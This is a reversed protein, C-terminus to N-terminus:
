PGPHPADGIRRTKALPGTVGISAIVTTKRRRANRRTNRSARVEDMAIRLTQKWVDVPKNASKVVPKKPCATGTLMQETSSVGCISCSARYRGASITDNSFVVEHANFPRM